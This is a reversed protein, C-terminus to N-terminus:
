KIIDSTPFENVIAGSAAVWHTCSNKIVWIPRYLCPLILILKKRIWFKIMISWSIQDPISQCPLNYQLSYVSYGRLITKGVWVMQSFDLLTIDIRQGEQATIIWPCDVSGYGNQAAVMSSLYGESSGRSADIVAQNGPCRGTGSMVPVFLLHCWMTWKGKLTVSLDLDNKVLPRIQLRIHNNCLCHVKRLVKRSCVWLFTCM